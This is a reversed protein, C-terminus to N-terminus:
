CKVKLTLKKSTKSTSVFNKFFNEFFPMEGTGSILLQCFIYDKGQNVIYPIGNCNYIEFKATSETPPLSPM